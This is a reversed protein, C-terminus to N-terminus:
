IVPVIVTGAIPAIGYTAVNGPPYGLGVVVVKVTVEGAMESDDVLKLPPWVICTVPDPNLAPSAPLQVIAAPM